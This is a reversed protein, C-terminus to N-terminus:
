KKRLEQIVKVIIYILYALLMVAAPIALFLAVLTGFAYFITDGFM